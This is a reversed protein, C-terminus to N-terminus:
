KYAVVNLSIPIGELRQSSTDACLGFEGVREVRSFRAAHLLDCLIDFSLGIYHFDYADTQGGFVMRMILIRQALGANRPDVFMRCLVDFDPVSIKASAGPRLVRNFEALARPLKEAYGLHEIVHSAYIEDVSADAFRGLDCCDGVYDVGPGPQVNFLQWGPIPETGGIHLRM